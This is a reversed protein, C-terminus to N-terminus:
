AMAEPRRARRVAEVPSSSYKRAPRLREPQFAPMLMAAVCNAASVGSSTVPRIAM